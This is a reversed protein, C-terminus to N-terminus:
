VVIRRSFIAVTRSSTDQKRDYLRYVYFRTSVVRSATNCPFINKNFSILVAAQPIITPIIM